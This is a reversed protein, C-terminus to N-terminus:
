TCTAHCPAENAREDLLTRVWRINSECAADRIIVRCELGNVVMPPAKKQMAQVPVVSDHWPCRISETPGSLVTGLFLPGGRHPCRARILMYAGARNRHVLYSQDGLEVLNAEDKHFRLIRM